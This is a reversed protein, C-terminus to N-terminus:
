NVESFSLSTANHEKFVTHSLKRLGNQIFKTIMVMRYEQFATSAMRFAGFALIGIAASHFDITGAVTMADVVKKLIYPSAVALGKSAVLLGMSAWFAPM